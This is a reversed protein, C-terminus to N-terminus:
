FLSLFYCCFFATEIYTVQHQLHFIIFSFPLKLTPPKTNSVSFLLFFFSTGIYAAQFYYFSFPLKLTPESPTPGSRVPSLLPASHRARTGVGRPYPFVANWREAAAIQLVNQVHHRSGGSSVRIPRAQMEQLCCPEM